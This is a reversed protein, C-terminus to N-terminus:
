VYSHRAAHIDHFFRWSLYSFFKVDCPPPMFVIDRIHRAANSVANRYVPRLLYRLVICLQLYRKYVNKKM